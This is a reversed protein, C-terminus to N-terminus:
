AVAEMEVETMFTMRRHIERTIRVDAICYEAIEDIRGEAWMDYIMSGDIGNKGPIGLAAALNDLSIKGGHGAWQTMTDYVRDTDWPRADFPLWIPPKIGLIISRQLLFRLDFAIVNHGVLPPRLVGANHPYTKEFWQFFQRLVDAEEGTFALPPGDGSAAGICCIQGKAGDLATKRWLADGEPEAQSPGVETIWRADLSARPTFKIEDKDTIGLDAALSEKTAGNPVRINEAAHKIQEDRAGPRMDPITEIDLYIHNM